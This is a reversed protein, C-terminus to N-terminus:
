FDNLLDSRIKTAKILIKIIEKNEEEKQSYIDRINLNTTEPIKNNIKSCELFHSQSDEKGNEGCLLCSLDESGNKFNLKFDEMHTRFKFLRQAEFKNIIKTKLYNQISLKEYKLYMMKSHQKSIDSLYKLAAKNINQKVINKFAEKSIHKLNEFNSDMEIDILDEKVTSVWDSKLPSKVQANFFKGLLEDDKLNVM